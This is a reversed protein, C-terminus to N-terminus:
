EEVSLVPVMEELLGERARRLHRQKTNGRNWRSVEIMTNVMNYLHERSILRVKVLTLKRIASAMVKSDEADLGAGPVHCRACSNFGNTLIVRLQFFLRALGHWCKLM